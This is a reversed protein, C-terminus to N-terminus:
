SKSYFENVLIIKQFNLPVAGRRKIFFCKCYCIYTYMLFEQMGKLISELVEISVIVREDPNKKGISSNHIIVVPPWIVLDEKLVFAEADSLIERVWPSGPGVESKWGMLM